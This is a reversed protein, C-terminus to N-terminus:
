IVRAIPQIILGPNVKRWLWPAKGEKKMRNFEQNWKLQTMKWQNYHMCSSCWEGKGFNCLRAGDDKRGDVSKSFYGTEPNKRKYKFPCVKLM